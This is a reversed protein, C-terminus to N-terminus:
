IAQAHVNRTEVVLLNGAVDQVFALENDDTYDLLVGIDVGRTVYDIRNLNEDFINTGNITKVLYHTEDVGNLGNVGWDGETAWMDNNYTFGGNSANKSTFSVGLAQSFIERIKRANGSPDFTVIGGFDFDSVISKGTKSQYITAIQVLQSQTLGTIKRLIGAYDVSLDDSEDVIYQAISQVNTSNSISGSSAVASDLVTKFETIKSLPVPYPINFKDVGIKTENGFDGDYVGTNSNYTLPMSYGKIERLYRQLTIVANGKDGKKITGTTSVVTGGGATGTQGTSTGGNSIANSNGGTYNNQYNGDGSYGTNPNLLPINNKLKRGGKGDSETLGFYAAAAAVLLFLLMKTNKSIPKKTRM